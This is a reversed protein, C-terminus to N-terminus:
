FPYDLGVFVNMGDRGHAADVRAAVNPRALFRFGMGPNYEIHRLRDGAFNDTVRGIDLFPAIELEITNDFIRKRMVRIREEFNVLVAIDDIFRNTGFGRLTNEGGLTPREYFPIGQGSVADILFRAVFVM